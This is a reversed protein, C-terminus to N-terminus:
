YMNFVKPYEAPSDCRFSPPARSSNRCGLRCRRARPYPGKGPPPMTAMTSVSTMEFVIETCFTSVCPWYATPLSCYASSLQSDLTSLGSDLSSLEPGFDGLWFGFAWLRSNLTWLQSDLTSLHNSVALRQNSRRFHVSFSTESRGFTCTPM